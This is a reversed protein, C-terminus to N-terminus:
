FYKREKTTRVIEMVEEPTDVITFLDLDEPSITEHPGHLMVEKIWDELGGWFDKGVLIIPVKEVKDTQVLTMMEVFEDMTGFGGPFYIYAQSSAYLMVKRTFFYSFGIGKKVYLNERQEFPLQINLGVSEGGGEYAGRNGAEMIGPGGGTIVTYGEEALMRGLQVADKYYRSDEPLRASGFISVENSFDALFEFGDIFEAMIRFIRWNISSRFDVKEM